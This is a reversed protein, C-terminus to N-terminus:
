RARGLILSRLHLCIPICAGKKWDKKEEWETITLLIISVKARWIWAAFQLLYHRGDEQGICKEEWEELIGQTLIPLLRKANGRM